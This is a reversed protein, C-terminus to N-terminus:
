SLIRDTRFFGDSRCRHLHLYSFYVNDPSYVKLISLAIIMVESLALSKRIISHQQAQLRAERTKRTNQRRKSCNEYGIHKPCNDVQDGKVLIVRDM